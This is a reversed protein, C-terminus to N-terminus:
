VELANWAEKGQGAHVAQVTLSFCAEKSKDGIWLSLKSLLEDAIRQSEMVPVDPLVLAFELGSRQYAFAPTDSPLLRRIANNVAGPVIRRQEESLREANVLRIIVMSLDFDM